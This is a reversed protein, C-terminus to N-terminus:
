RHPGDKKHQWALLYKDDPAVIEHRSFKAGPTPRM